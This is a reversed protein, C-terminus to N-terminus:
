AIDSEDVSVRGLKSENLPSMSLNIKCCEEKEGPVQNAFNATTWIDLIREASDYSGRRGKNSTLVERQLLNHLKQLYESACQAVIDEQGYQEYWSDAV